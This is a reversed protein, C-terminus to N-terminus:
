PHPDAIAGGDGLLRLYAFRNEIKCGDNQIKYVDRYEAVGTIGGEALSKGIPHIYITVYNTGVASDPGTQDVRINSMVHLFRMVDRGQLYRSAIEDPGVFTEEVLQGNALKLVADETFLDAFARSTAQMDEGPHDLYWAYDNVVQTCSTIVDSESAM